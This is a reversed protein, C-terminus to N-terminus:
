PEDSLEPRRAQEEKPKMAESFREEIHEIQGAEVERLLVRFKHLAQGQEVKSRTAEQYWQRSASLLRQTADLTQLFTAKKKPLSAATIREVAQQFREAVNETKGAYIEHILHSVAQDVRNELRKSRGTASTADWEQHLARVLECADAIQKQKSEEQELSRLIQQRRKSREM